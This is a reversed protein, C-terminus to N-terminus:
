FRWEYDLPHQIPLKIRRGESFNARQSLEPECQSHALAARYIKEDIRSSLALRRIANLLVSPYVGPLSILLQDFGTISKEIKTLILEDILDEHQKELGQEM